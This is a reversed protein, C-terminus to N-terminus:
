STLKPHKSGKEDDEDEDDAQFKRKSPPNQKRIKRALTELAERILVFIQFTSHPQVKRMEVTINLGLSPPANHTSSATLCSACPM